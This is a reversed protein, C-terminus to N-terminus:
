TRDERVSAVLLGVYSFWKEQEVDEGRHIAFATLYALAYHDLLHADDVYVRKPTRHVEEDMM